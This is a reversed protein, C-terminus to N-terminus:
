ARATDNRLLNQQIIKREKIKYKAQQQKELRKEVQLIEIKFEASKVTATLLFGIIQVM